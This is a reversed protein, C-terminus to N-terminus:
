SWSYFGEGSKRVLRGQNVMDRLLGPPEYKPDDLLSRLSGTLDCFEDLGVLDLLRLPGVPYGCGLKMCTDIDEKSAAGQEVLRVAELLYPALLRNIIFGPSDKVVVVSKGLSECFTRARAITEEACLESRVLEIVKSAPAPSLIHLGVVLDPRGTAEALKVIPLTATDSALITNPPCLRDLRQFLDTKVDLDEVVAEIIIDCERVAEVDLTAEIRKLTKGKAEDDIRGREVLQSLGQEIATMARNISELRRGLMVTHYGAQACTQVIGSGMIGTGVVGVLRLDDM